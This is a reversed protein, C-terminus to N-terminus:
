VFNRFVNFITDGTNDVWISDISNDLPDRSQYVLYSADPFASVYNPHDVAFYDQLCGFASCPTTTKVVITTCNITTDPPQSTTDCNGLSDCTIQQPVIITTDCTVITDGLNHVKGLATVYKKTFFQSQIQAYQANTFPGYLRYHYDFPPPDTPYDIPDTGAWRLKVGTIIGGKTPANVFPLEGVPPNFIVTQPPNDNRGFARWVITSAMGQEDFAQLFVYQIVYRSIPDALDASLKIIKETGPNGGVIDVPVITWKGAQGQVGAIYQDITLAGIVDVTAVHYRFYSIIGDPDTGWWYIVSNRSFNTSEPPSNIFGVEPAQNAMIEGELKSACGALFFISLPLALLVFLTLAALLRNKLIFNM